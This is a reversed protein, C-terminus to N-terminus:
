GMILPFNHFSEIEAHVIHSFLLLPSIELKQQPEAPATAARCRRPSLKQRLKLIVLQGHITFQRIALRTSYVYIGLLIDTHMQKCHVASPLFLALPLCFYAM